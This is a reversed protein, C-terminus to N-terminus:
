NFYNTQFYKKNFGKYSGKERRVRAKGSKRENLAGAMLRKLWSYSLLGACSSPSRVTFVVVSETAVLIVPRNFINNKTKEENTCIPLTLKKQKFFIKM